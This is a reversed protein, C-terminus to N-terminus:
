KIDEGFRNEDCTFKPMEPLNDSLEMTIKPMDCYSCKYFKMDGDAGNKDTHEEDKQWDHSDSKPCPPDKVPPPQKFRRELQEKCKRCIACERDVDWFADDADLLIFQRCDHCYCDIPHIKSM